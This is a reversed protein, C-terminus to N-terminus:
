QGADAYSLWVISKTWHRPLGKRRQLMFMTLGCSESQHCSDVFVAWTALDTLDHSFVSHECGLLCSGGTGSRIQTGSIFWSQSFCRLAALSYASCRFSRLLCTMINLPLDLFKRLFRIVDPGDMPSPCKTLFFKDNRQRKRQREFRFVNKPFHCAGLFSFLLDTTMTAAQMFARFYLVSM